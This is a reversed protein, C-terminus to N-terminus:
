LITLFHVVISSLPRRYKKRRRKLEPIFIEENWYSFSRSNIFGNELYVVVVNQDGYGNMTLEKDYRKNALVIMPMLRTGDLAIAGVM